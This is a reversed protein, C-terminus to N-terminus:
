QKQPGGIGFGSLGFRYEFAGIDVLPATGRGSDPTMPDDIFRPQGHVDLLLTAFGGRTALIFTIVSNDGADILPSGASLTLDDDATGAEGDPGIPDSFLPDSGTSGPGGVGIPLGMVCSYSLNVVGPANIQALLPDNGSDQNAWLITNTIQVGVANNLLVGGTSAAARNAHITLGMLVGFASNEMAIGAGLQADNGAIVSNMLTIGGNSQSGVAGGILAANGHFLCGGVVADTNGRLSLAGGRAAASNFRFDCYQIIPRSGTEVAIAGGQGASNQRFLCDVMIADSASMHVAGGAGVATNQLFTCRAVTTSSGILLLGAGRDALAGGAGDGVGGVITFGDLLTAHDTGIGAVVHYANDDHATLGGEADNKLLDGSLITPNAVIDRQDRSTETGEFGGYLQVGNVLGFTANRGGGRSPYYTGGAVWVETVLGGSDFAADLAQQLDNFAHQWCRGNGLGRAEPDVYRIPNVATGTQPGGGGVPDTANLEDCRDQTTHEVGDGGAPDDRELGLTVVHFRLPSGIPIRILAAHAVQGVALLGGVLLGVGLRRRRADVSM